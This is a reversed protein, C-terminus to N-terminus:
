GALENEINRIYDAIYEALQLYPRDDNRFAIGVLDDHQELDPFVVRPLDLSLLGAHLAVFAVRLNGDVWPHARLTKAYLRAVAYAADDISVSRDPAARMQDGAQNFERCIFNVRDELREPHTGRYERTRRSRVTGVNGGFYVHEWDGGHRWRFRGADDPFLEGFIREHWARLLEPTFAFGDQGTIDPIELLVVSMAEVSRDWTEVPTAGEACYFPSEPQDCFGSFEGAVDLPGEGV